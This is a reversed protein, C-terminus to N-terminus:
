SLMCSCSSQGVRVDSIFGLFVCLFHQVFHDSRCWGDETSVQVLVLNVDSSTEFDTQM